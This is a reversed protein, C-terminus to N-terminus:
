NKYGKLEQGSQFLTLSTAKGTTDLEFMIKAQLMSNRFESKSLTEFPIKPQATAQIIL